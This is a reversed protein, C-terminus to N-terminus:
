DSNWKSIRYIRTQQMLSDRGNDNKTYFNINDLYFLHKTISGSRIDMVRIQLTVQGKPHICIFLPSVANGHPMGCNNKLNTIQVSNVYNKGEHCLINFAVDKVKTNVCTYNSTNSLHSSFCLGVPDRAV